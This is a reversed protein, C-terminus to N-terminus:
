HDREGSSGAARQFVQGTPPDVITFEVVGAASAEITTLASDSFGPWTAGRYEPQAPPQPPALPNGSYCKARPLGREDVLVATGAQLVAQHPVAAGARFSYTTFATDSRLLVATLRAVHDPLDAAVFGHVDSWAQAKAPDAQLLTVLQRPECASVGRTGGFLGPTAGALVGASGVPVVVDQDVGLGPLFPREGASRVPEVTVVSPDDVGRSGALLEAGAATQAQALAGAVILWGRGGGPTRM